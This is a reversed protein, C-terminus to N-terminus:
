PLAIIRYFRTANTLSGADLKVALTNTALVDGAVDLWQPDSLDNKFQLRYTLGPIASWGLAAGNTTVTLPGVNLDTAVVNFTKSDSRNPNGNDTVLM